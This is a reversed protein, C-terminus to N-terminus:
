FQANRRADASRCGAVGCGSPAKPVWEPGAPADLLRQATWGSLAQGPPWAAPWCPCTIYALDFVAADLAFATQKLRAGAYQAWLSRMGPSLPPNVGAAEQGQQVLGATSM